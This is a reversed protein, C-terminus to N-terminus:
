EGSVSEPCCVVPRDFRTDNRDHIGEPTHRCVPTPSEYRAVEQWHCGAMECVDMERLHHCTDEDGRLRSWGHVTRRGVFCSKEAHNAPQCLGLAKAIVHSCRIQETKEDKEAGGGATSKEKADESKGEEPNFIM